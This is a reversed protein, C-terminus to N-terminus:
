EDVHWANQTARVLARIQARNTEIGKRLEEMVDLRLRDAQDIAEGMSKAMFAENMARAIQNINRGIAALERTSAQVAALEDVSLVPTGTVNAQILSSAWRSPTMGKLRAREGAAEKIFGPLRVTMRDAEIGEPASPAPTDVQGEPNSVVLVMERLLESETQGRSAAVRQFRERQEVSVRAKITTRLGTMQGTGFSPSPPRNHSITGCCRRM